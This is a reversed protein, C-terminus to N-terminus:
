LISRVMYLADEGDTYYRKKVNVIEWNNKQYFRIAAENSARVELTIFEISREDTKAMAIMDDVLGQAIGKRRESPLVCLRNISASNFTVMFDLYGIIEEKRLAVLIVAFPNDDFEHQLATASWPSAFCAAELRAISALDALDAKRFSAKPEFM